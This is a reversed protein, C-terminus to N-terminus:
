FEELKEIKGDNICVRFNKYDHDHFYVYGDEIKDVCSITKPYLEYYQTGDENVAWLHRGEKENAGFIWGGCTMVRHLADRVDYTVKLSCDINPKLVNNSAIKQIQGSSKDMEQSELIVASIYKKIDKVALALEERVVAKVINEVDERTLEDKEEVNKLGAEIKKAVDEMDANMMKEFDM